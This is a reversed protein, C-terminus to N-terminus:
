GFGAARRLGRDGKHEPLLRQRALVLGQAPVLYVTAGGYVAGLAAAQTSAHV